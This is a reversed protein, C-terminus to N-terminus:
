RCDRAIVGGNDWKPKYIAQGKRLQWCSLNVTGAWVVAVQRGYRDITVPEYRVPGLRMAGALSRKSAEGDGPACTRWRPCAEIEPADIGLLRLRQEGCHLTDGDVVYASPCDIMGAISADPPAISLPM